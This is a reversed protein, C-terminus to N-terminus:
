LIGILKRGTNAVHVFTHVICVMHHTDLSGACLVPEKTTGSDIVCLAGRTTLVCKLEALAPTTVKQPYLM